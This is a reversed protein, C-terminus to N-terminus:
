FFHILERAFRPDAAQRLDATSAKQIPPFGQSPIQLVDARTRHSEIQFYNKHRQFIEDSPAAGKLGWALRPMILGAKINRTCASTTTASGTTTSRNERSFPTTGSTTM